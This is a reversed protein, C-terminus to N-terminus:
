LDRDKRAARTRSAISSKGIGSSPRTVKPPESVIVAKSSARKAVNAPQIKARDEGDEGDEGDQLAM